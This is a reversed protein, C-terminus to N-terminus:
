ILKALTNVFELQKKDNVNTLEWQRAKPLTYIDIDANGKNKVIEIMDTLYYEKQVNDNKLENLFRCLFHTRFAYIGCNVRTIKLEDQTADKDEIIKDFKNESTLKVRGYGSPNKRITTVIKVDKFNLINKMLNSTVLPTDGSIILIRDDVRLKMLDSICCQIAHGTGMAPEQIVFKIYKLVDFEKLTKEIILHYKGVVVLINTPDLYLVEKIIRVLMPEDNVMHLVKPLESKMRKGLGGAMIIVTTSNISTTSM